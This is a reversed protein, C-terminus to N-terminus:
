SFEQTITKKKEKKDDSVSFASHIILGHIDYKHKAHLTIRSYVNELRKDSITM